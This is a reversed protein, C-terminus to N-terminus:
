GPGRLRGVAFAIFVGVLTLALGFWTFAYELHHNRLTLQTQGGKPWGGPNPTADADVYFPALRQLDRARAMDDLSRVFWSDRAPDNEPVFSGRTEPARVLGVVTGAAPASRLSALAADRLETPVFGRNIMVLSGDGRRLPVFLYFGQTAQRERLEALGHVAVIKDALYTGSLRVRRYEQDAQRWSPWDAEPAVDSPEEFARAQIQALLGEKWAKRELQWTGLSVLIALAVLTAAFPAALARIAGRGSRLSM